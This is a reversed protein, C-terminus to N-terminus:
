HVLEPQNEVFPLVGSVYYAIGLSLLAIVIILLLVRWFGLDEVFEQWTTRFSSLVGEGQQLNPNLLSHSEMASCSLLAPLVLNSKPVSSQGKSALCCCSESEATQMTELKSHAGRNFGKVEQEELSELLRIVDKNVGRRKALVLPTAGQHNCIDIKLGNSVLFQITDVHGCLHLATNGQYDTALLDAGFKHLLQCIDVNGRAAALHLGTRGRSDRINPDFGSELLRKSYNFDGDICAQLLPVNTQSSDNVFVYSM